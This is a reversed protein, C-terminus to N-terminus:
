DRHGALEVDTGMKVSCGNPWDDCNPYAPCGIHEDHEEKPIEWVDDVSRKMWLLRATEILVMDIDTRERDCGFADIYADRVHNYMDLPESLQKLGDKLKKSARKGTLQFLGPINDTMDGTLLQTYFNLQGEDAEIWYVEGNKFHHGPVMDLDKDRTCIITTLNEASSHKGLDIWQAISMGDDAEMGDCTECNYEKILFDKLMQYYYPKGDKPRNGKYEFLTAVDTRFNYSGTFYITYDTAKTTELINSIYKKANYRAIGPADVTIDFLLTFDERKGISDIWEVAEKKYQFRAVYGDKEEQNIHVDWWKHQSAFGARYLIEDGDILCRM